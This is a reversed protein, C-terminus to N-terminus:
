KRSICFLCLCCLKEKFVRKYYKLDIKANTTKDLLVPISDISGSFRPASLGELRKFQVPEPPTEISEAGEPTIYFPVRDPGSDGNLEFWVIGTIAGILDQWTTEPDNLIITLTSGALVYDYDGSALEGLQQGDFKSDYIKISSLDDISDVSLELREVPDQLQLTVGSEKFGNRSLKLISQDKPTLRINQGPCRTIQGLDDMAYLAFEVYDEGTINGDFYDLGVGSLSTTKEFSIFGGSAKGKVFIKPIQIQEATIISPTISAMLEKAAYIKDAFFKRNNRKHTNKSDRRGLVIDPRNILGLFESGNNVFGPNGSLPKGFNNADFYYFANQKPVFLKVGNEYEALSWESNEREPFISELNSTVRGPDIAENLVPSSNADYFPVSLNPVTFAENGDSISKVASLGDAKLTSNKIIPSLFFKTSSDFGESDIELKGADNGSLSILNDAVEIVPPAKYDFAVASYQRNLYLEFLYGYNFDVDDEGLGYLNSSDSSADRGSLDPMKIYVSDGSVTYFGVNKVSRKGEIFREDIRFFPFIDLIAKAVVEDDASTEGLTTYGEIAAGTEGFSVGSMGVNEYFGGSEKDPAITKYISAIVEIPIFKM